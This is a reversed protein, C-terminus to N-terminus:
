KGICLHPQNRVNALAPKKRKKSLAGANADNNSSGAPSEEMSVTDDDEDEEAQSAAAQGWDSGDDSGSAEGSADDSESLIVQKRKHSALAKALPEAHLSCYSIPGTTCCPPVCAASRSMSPSLQHASFCLESSKSKPEFKVKEKALNYWDEDGDQYVIRHKNIGDYEVIEGPFRYVNTMLQQFLFLYHVMQGSGFAAVRTQNRVRAYRNITISVM